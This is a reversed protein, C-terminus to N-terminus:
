SKVSMDNNVSKVGRVSKALKSVLSKEADNAAVGSIAVVGDTTVIKTHLASTSKHTMLAYKVQSTISADDISESIKSAPQPAPRITLENKVSKVGDVDRAYEATLERQAENDASGTLVVVGDKVDVKTDLSSVNARVLMQYRVKWAIWADSHEKLAPDLTIQNDVRLVGPLNTVTDEALTKLDKDAVSGALTVVGDKSRVTVKDDLVTRYNYSAKAASEIKADTGSSGFLSAASAALLSALLLHKLHM